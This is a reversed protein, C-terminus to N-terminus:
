LAYLDRAIFEAGKNGYALDGDSKEVLSVKM